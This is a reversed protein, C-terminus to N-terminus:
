IGFLTMLYNFLRIFWPLLNIILLFLLFFSVAKWVKTANEKSMFYTLGVVLMRGGDIPGLPLLNFLGVGINIIWLWFLLQTFWSILDLLGRGYKDLAQETYSIEAASLSVGLYAKEENEGLLVNYVGKDTELVIEDGPNADTLIGSLESVTGVDLENIKLINEGVSVGSLNLPGGEELNVIFVGNSELLGNTFPSLTIAIGIVMLGLLINSFSGAALVGLQVKRSKKEMQKEDPEVFAAPIPGLFAFGSSKIKINFLRAVVGHSFEHIIAIIILSIIWHLFSLTPLGPAIKIGPLVPALAPPAEPVFLLELTAKVLIATMAIMGVFGVLVGLFTLLKLFRPHKKAVLDMWSLGWKTRYLAFVGSQIEFRKKHRLYFLFILIVFVLFLILDLNM